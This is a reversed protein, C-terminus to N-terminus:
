VDRNRARLTWRIRSRSAQCRSDGRRWEASQLLDTLVGGDPANALEGLVKASEWLRDAVKEDLQSWVPTAAALM